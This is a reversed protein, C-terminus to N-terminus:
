WSGMYKLFIAFGLRGHDTRLDIQNRDDKSLSWHAALEEESWNQKM